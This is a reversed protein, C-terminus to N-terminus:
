QDLGKILTKGEGAYKTAIVDIIGGYLAGAVITAWFAFQMDPAMLIPIAIDLSVVSGVFAGRIAPYLRINIIPYIVIIGMLAVMVGIMIRNVLITWFLPHSLSWIEPMDHSILFLCLLGLLMGFSKGIAIRRLLPVAWLKSFFSVM